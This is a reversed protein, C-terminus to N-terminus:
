ANCAHVGESRSAEGCAEARERQERQKMGKEGIELLQNLAEPFIESAHKVELRERQTEHRAV